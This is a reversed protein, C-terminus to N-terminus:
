LYEETKNPNISKDRNSYQNIGYCCKLMGTSVRSKFCVRTNLDILESSNPFKYKIYEQEVELTDILRYTKTISRSILQDNHM